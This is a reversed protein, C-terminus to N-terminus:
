TSKSFCFKTLMWYLANLFYILFQYARLLTFLFQIFLVCLQFIHCMKYLTHGLLCKGFLFFLVMSSRSQYKSKSYYWLMKGLFFLIHKIRRCGVLRSLKFIINYPQLGQVLSLKSTGLKFLNTSQIANIGNTAYFGFKVFLGLRRLGFFMFKINILVICLCFLSCICLASLQM